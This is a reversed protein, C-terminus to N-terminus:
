ACDAYLMCFGCLLIRIHLRVQCLNNNAKTFQLKESTQIYNLNCVPCCKNAIEDGSLQGYAIECISCENRCIPYQKYGVTTRSQAIRQLMYFSPMGPFFEKLTAFIETQARESHNFRLGIGMFRDVLTNLNVTVTVSQKLDERVADLGTRRGIAPQANM